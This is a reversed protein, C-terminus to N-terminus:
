MTKFKEAGDGNWIDAAWLRSRVRMALGLLSGQATLASCLTSQLSGLAGSFAAKDGLTDTEETPLQCRSRYAM